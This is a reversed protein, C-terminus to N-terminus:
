AAFFLRIGVVTLWDDPLATSFCVKFYTDSGDIIGIALGPLHWRSMTEEIFTDMYDIFPDNSSAQSQPASLPHQSAEALVSLTSSLLITLKM